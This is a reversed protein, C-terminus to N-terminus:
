RLIMLHMDSSLLLARMGTVEAAYSRGRSYELHGCYVCKLSGLVGFPAGAFVKGSKPNTLRMEHVKRLNKYLL